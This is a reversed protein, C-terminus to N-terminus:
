HLTLGDVRGMAEDTFSVEIRWEPAQPMLVLGKYTIDEVGTHLDDQIVAEQGYRQMLSKATDNAAVPSLCTIAGESPPANQASAPSVLLVFAIVAKRTRVSM